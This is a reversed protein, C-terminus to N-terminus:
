YAINQFKFHKIFNTCILDNHKYNKTYLSVFNKYKIKNYLSLFRSIVYFGCHSSTLGQIRVSSYKINTTHKTIFIQIQKPIFPRPLSLSDFLECGTYKGDIFELTLLIWHGSKMSVPSTNLVLFNFGSVPNEIDKIDNCSYVGHYGKFGCLLNNIYFNSTM